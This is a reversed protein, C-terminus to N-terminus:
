QNQNAVIVEEEVVSDDSFRAIHYNFFDTSPHLFVHNLVDGLLPLNSSTYYTLANLIASAWRVLRFLTIVVAVSEEYFPYEDDPLISEYVAELDKDIMATEVVDSM